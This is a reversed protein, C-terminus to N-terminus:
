ATRKIKKVAFVALVLLLAVFYVTTIMSKVVSCFSSIDVSNQSISPYKNLMYIININECYDAFGALLPLLCLVFFVGNFKNIKKLFYAMLLCYGLGFLLPYVFDIPLQHYLYVAMGEIGLANFLGNVFDLDYGLPMMDLLKFDPAFVLTKPISVLLMYAYICNTIVFLLLVKKGTAQSNILQKLKTFM